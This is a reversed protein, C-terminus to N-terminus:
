AYAPRRGITMVKILIMGAVFGGIHAMYAVGSTQETRAIAGVGNVFQILIWLGLMVFAPVAVIGGRTFVRVKNRPFLLIYAGLVGSIAGSAGVTPVGSHPASMIHAFAAAVGCVLYFILYRIGGLVKEINDGFIWLYLMNGGLHAWGGHLFMSTFLTTWFPLPITPALDHGASYERPVVGWAMIFSELAGQPRSLELFFALVNLIILAINVVAPPGGQVKDDGVPIM